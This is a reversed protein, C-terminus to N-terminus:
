RSSSKKPPLCSTWRKRWKLSRRAFRLTLSCCRPSTRRSECGRVKGEGDEDEEGEEGELLEELLDSPDSSISLDSLGSDEDSSSGEKEVKNLKNEYRIQYKKM